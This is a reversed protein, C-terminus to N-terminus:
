AIGTRHPSLASAEAWVCLLEWTAPTRATAQTPLSARRCGPHAASPWPQFPTQAPAHRPLKSCLSERPSKGTDSARSRATVSVQKRGRGAGNRSRRAATCSGPIVCESTRRVSRSPPQAPDGSWRKFSRRCSFWCCTKLRRAGECTRSRAKVREALRMGPARTVHHRLFVPM